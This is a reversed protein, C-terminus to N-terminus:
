RSPEARMEDVFTWLGARTGLAAVLLLAAVAVATIVPM